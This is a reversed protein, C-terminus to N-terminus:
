GKLRYAVVVSTTLQQTGASIPVESGAAFMTGPIVPRPAAYSGAASISLVRGLRMGAAKTYQEAQDRADIIAEARAKAMLRAQQDTLDLSVGDVRVANGGADAADTITQGAKALDHLEATLSESVTYGTITDQQSYQPQVSMGSTQQDATAVGDATLAGLVATMAQNVNHLAASVSAAQANAELSLQLEDPTGSVVGTGTVTITGPVAAAARMAGGACLCIAACAIGTARLMLTTGSM